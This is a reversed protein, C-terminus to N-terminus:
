VDRAYFQLAAAEWEAEDDDTTGWSGDDQSHPFSVLSM